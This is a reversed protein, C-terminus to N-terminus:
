APLMMRDPVDPPQMVGGTRLERVRDMMDELKDAGAESSGNGIGSVVDAPVIFEGDSLLVDQDGQMTAPIMDDMGDGSGRLMGEDVDVNEDFQGTQVKEVLDKLAEEGFKALFMGLIMETNDSKGKIAEVSKSILEKDNMSESEAEEGMLAGIGMESMDNMGGEQYELGGGEKFNTPFMFNFEPDIGGKYDPGPTRFKAMPLPKGRPVILDDDKKINQPSEAFAAGLGAGLAAPSKLADFFSGSTASTLGTGGAPGVMEALNPNLTPTVGATPAMAGFADSTGALKGGIAGGIGGMAASRLADETTGGQLLAGVGGGIASAIMPSAVLGLGAPGLIAPAALSLITSLM